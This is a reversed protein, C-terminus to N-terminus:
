GKFTFKTFYLFKDYRRRANMRLTRYLVHHTLAYSSHSPNPQRKRIKENERENRENRTRRKKNRTESEQKTVDM